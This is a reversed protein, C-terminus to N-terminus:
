FRLLKGRALTDLPTAPKLALGKRHTTKRLIGQTATKRAVRVM